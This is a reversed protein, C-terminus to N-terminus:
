VRSTGDTHCITQGVADLKPAVLVTLEGIIVASRMYLQQGAYIMIVHNRDGPLTGTQGVPFNPHFSIDFAVGGAGVLVAEQHYPRRPVLVQGVTTYPVARIWPKPGIPVPVAAPSSEGAQFGKSDNSSEKAVGVRQRRAVLDAEQMDTYSQEAQYWALRRM